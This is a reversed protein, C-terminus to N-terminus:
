HRTRRLIDDIRPRTDREATDVEPNDLDVREGAEFAEFAALLSEPRQCLAEPDLWVHWVLANVVADCFEFDLTRDAFAQALHLGLADLMQGRQLGSEAQWADVDDGEIAFAQGDNDFRIRLEDVIRAITM